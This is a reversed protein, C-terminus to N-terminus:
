FDTPQNYMNTLRWNDGFTCKCFSQCGFTDKNKCVIKSEIPNNQYYQEDNDYGEKRNRILVITVVLAIVILFVCVLTLLCNQNM